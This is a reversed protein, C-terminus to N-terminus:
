ILNLSKLAEMLSVETQHTFKEKGTGKCTPCPDEFTEGRFQRKKKCTGSCSSCLRFTFTEKKVLFRVDKNYPM